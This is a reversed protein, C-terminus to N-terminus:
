AFCHFIRGIRANIKAVAVEYAIHAHLLRFQRVLLRIEFMTLQYRFRDALVEDDNVKDSPRPLRNFKVNSIM